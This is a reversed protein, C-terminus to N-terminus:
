QGATDSGGALYALNQCIAMLVIPLRTALPEASKADNAHSAYSSISFALPVDELREVCKVMCRKYVM